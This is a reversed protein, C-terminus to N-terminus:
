YSGQKKLIFMCGTKGFLDELGLVCKHKGIDYVNGRESKKIDSTRLFYRNISKALAFIM